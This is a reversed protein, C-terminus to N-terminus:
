WGHLAVRTRIDALPVFCVHEIRRRIDARSGFCVDQPGSPALWDDHSKSLNRRESHTFPAATHADTLPHVRRM